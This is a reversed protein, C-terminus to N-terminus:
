DVEIGFEINGSFPVIQGNSNNRLMCEVQASIKFVAKGATNKGFYSLDMVQFNAQSNQTDISTFEAGDKRVTLTIAYDRFLGVPDNEFISFDDLYSGCATGDLLVSKSRVVGNAYTVEAKVVHIEDDIEDILKLDDSVFEDDFYWKVSAVPVDQEEIWVQLDGGPSVFHRLISSAHKQYGIILENCVMGENGSVFSVEACVTYKGPEHIVVSNTGAYTGNVYWKIQEIYNSNPFMQKSLEFAPQPALAAFQLESPLNDALLEQPLDINGNFVGMEVEFDGNSLKGAFLGVGHIMESFTSMYFNDDGAVMSFNETGLTGDVRFVPTNPEIPDEVEEKKCSSLGAITLLFILYIYSTKM